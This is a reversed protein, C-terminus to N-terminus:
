IQFLQNGAPLTFDRIEHVLGCELAQTSSLYVDETLRRGFIDESIRTRERLIAETRQEDHLAARLAAKGARTDAAPPGSPFEMRALEYAFNLVSTFKGLNREMRLGRARIVQDMSTLAVGLISPDLGTAHSSFGGDEIGWHEPGVVDSFYDFMATLHKKSVRGHNIWDYVSPGQIGFHAAVTTKPVGKLRIAEAIAKGLTKGTHM